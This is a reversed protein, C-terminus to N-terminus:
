NKKNRKIWKRKLHFSFLEKTEYYASTMRFTTEKVDKVRVLPLVSYAKIPKINQFSELSLM